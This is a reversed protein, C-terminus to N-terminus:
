IWSRQWRRGLGTLLEYQSLGSAAALKELDFDFELWDGELLEPAASADVAILDMSIRGIIPLQVAGFRASGSAALSRLYGDAYGINLIAARLREHAVFTANYGVSQGPVVSRLQLIQAELRVVAGIVGRAEQRPIGGYLALGPRVLDFGYDEGLFIAASNALSYRQAPVAARLDRFRALQMANLEHDEDACALHSHLTHINLGDATSVEDLSLGLRNMGTDVMLDCPDASRGSAKWRAIQEATILVPRVGPRPQDDPGLGHLVALTGEPLFDLESAEWWTSVFFDRCGEALLHQVVARAGLGYANAKVAAGTRTGARAELQRYNSVLAARDCCLRLPHHM